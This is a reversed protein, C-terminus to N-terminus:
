RRSLAADVDAIQLILVNRLRGDTLRLYSRLVLSFVVFYGVSSTVAAGNIGWQPIAFLNAILNVAVGVLPARYVIPPSGEAAMFNMIVTELALAALGPLLLILATAAGSFKSGYLVHVILGALLALSAAAALVLPVLLRLVRNTNAARASRDDDRSARQFIITGFVAGLITLPVGLAAAIAYVGTRATGLFHNCLLLDSQLLFLWLLSSAYIKVGYGIQVRLLSRSPRFRYRVIRNLYTALIIATLVETAIRVGVLAGLHAGLVVLVTVTGLLLGTGAILDPLNYMKVHGTGLMVRRTFENFYNAPVVPLYLLFLGLSIGHLLPGRLLTGVVALAITVLVGGAASCALMNSIVADRDAKVRGIFYISSQHVGFTTLLVALSGTAVLVSITGTGSPGLQRAILIGAVMACLAQLLQTGGILAVDRIFALRLPNRM